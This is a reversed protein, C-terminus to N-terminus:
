SSSVSPIPVIAPTTVALDQYAAIPLYEIRLYHSHTYMISINYTVVTLGSGVETGVQYWEEDDTAVIFNPAGYPIVPVGAQEVYIGTLGNHGAPWRIKIRNVYSDVLSVATTEPASSSTNKPTSIVPEVYYWERAM